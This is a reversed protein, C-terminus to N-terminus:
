VHGAERRRKERLELRRQKVLAEAKCFEDILSDRQQSDVLRSNEVLAKVYDAGRYGFAEVLSNITPASLHKLHKLCIFCLDRVNRVDDQELYAWLAHQALHDINYVRVPVGNVPVIVTDFERDIFRCCSLEVNLSPEDHDYCLRCRKVRQTDGDEVCAYGNAQCFQKLLNFGEGNEDDLALAEAFGNMQYCFVLAASGKLVCSNTGNFLFRLVEEMVKRHRAQVEHTWPALEVKTTVDNETQQSRKWDVWEMGYERLMFGDIAKWHGLLRLEWVKSFALPTLTSDNLYNEKMGRAIPIAGDALLDLLARLHNAVWLTGAHGPVDQHPELGFDGFFATASEKFQPREWDLAYFHWDGPTGLSCSLNLAYRGTIYKM